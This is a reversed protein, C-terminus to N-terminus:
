SAEARVFRVVLLTCLIQDVIGHLSGSPLLSYTQCSLRKIKIGLIHIRKQHYHIHCINFPILFNLRKAGDNSGSCVAKSFLSEFLQHWM